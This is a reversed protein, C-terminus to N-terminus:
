VYFICSKTFAQDWSVPTTGAGFLGRLVCAGDIYSYSGHFTGIRRLEDFLNDAANEDRLLLHEATHATGLVGAEFAHMMTPWVLFRWLMPREATAKRNPYQLFLYRLDQRLQTHADRVLTRAMPRLRADFADLAAASEVLYITTAAQCASAMTAWENISNVLATAAAHEPLCRLGSAWAWPNFDQLDHVLHRFGASGGDPDSASALRFYNIRTILEFVPRPCPFASNLCDAELDPFDRTYRLQREVDSKRLDAVATTTTSLVDVIIFSTIFSTIFDISAPWEADLNRLSGRGAVYRRVADLHIKFGAIPSLHTEQQLMSLLATLSSPDDQEAASSRQLQRSMGSFVEGRYLYLDPLEHRDVIAKTALSSVIVMNQLLEPLATWDQLAVAHTQRWYTASLDPFM